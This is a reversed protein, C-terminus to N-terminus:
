QEQKPKLYVGYKNLEPIKSEINKINPNTYFISLNKKQTLIYKLQEYEVYM